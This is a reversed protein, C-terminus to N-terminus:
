DGDADAEPDIVFHLRAIERAEAQFDVGLGRSAFLAASRRRGWPPWLQKGRVRERLRCCASTMRSVSCNQQKQSLMRPSSASRWLARLDSSSGSRMRRKLWAM